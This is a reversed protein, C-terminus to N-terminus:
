TQEHLQAPTAQINSLEVFEDNLIKEKINSVDTNSSIDNIQQTNNINLSISM